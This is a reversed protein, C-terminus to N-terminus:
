MEKIQDTPYALIDMIDHTAEHTATTRYYNYKFFGFCLDAGSHMAPLGYSAGMVQLLSTEGILM